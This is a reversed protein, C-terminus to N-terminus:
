LGFNITMKSMIQLKQKLKKNENSINCIQIKLSKNETIIRNLKDQINENIYENLYEKKFCQLNLNIYNKFFKYIKLINM